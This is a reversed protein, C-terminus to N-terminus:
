RKFDFQYYHIMRAGPDSQTLLTKSIKFPFGGFIRLFRLLPVASELPAPAFDMKARKNKPSGM